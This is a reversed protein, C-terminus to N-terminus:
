PLPKGMLGLGAVAVLLYVVIAAGIIVNSTVPQFVLRSIMAPFVLMLLGGCVGGMLTIVKVVDPFVIATLACALLLVGGIVVHELVSAKYDPRCIKVLGICSERVPYTNVPIGVLLTFSIALRVGVFLPDDPPYLETISAFDATTDGFSLYGGFAIVLYFCMLLVTGSIAVKGCRAPTPGAFERAIVACNTHWMYAFIAICLVTPASDM